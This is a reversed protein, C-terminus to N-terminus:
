FFVITLFKGNTMGKTYFHLLFYYYKKINNNKILFIGKSATNIYLDLGKREVKSLPWRKKKRRRRKNRGEEEKKKKKKRREEKKKGSEEEEKM